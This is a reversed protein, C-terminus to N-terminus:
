IQLEGWFCGEAGCSWGYASEIAMARLTLWTYLTIVALVLAVGAITKALKM